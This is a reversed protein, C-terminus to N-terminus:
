PWPSRAPWCRARPSRSSSPSPTAAARPGARIPYRRSAAWCSRTNGPSPLGPPPSSTWAPPSPRHPAPPCPGGDHHDPSRCRMIVQLGHRGGSAGRGRVGCDRGGGSGSDLRASGRFPAGRGSCGTEASGRRSDATTASAPPLPPIRLGGTRGSHRGATQPSGAPPLREPPAAKGSRNGPDTGARSTENAYRAPVSRFGPLRRYSNLSGALSAADEAWRSPHRGSTPAHRGSNRTHMTEPGEIRRAGPNFPFDTCPKGHPEIGARNVHEHM